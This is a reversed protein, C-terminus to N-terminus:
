SDTTAIPLAAPMKPQKKYKKFFHFLTETQNESIVFADRLWM